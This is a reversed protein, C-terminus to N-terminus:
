GFAAHEKSCDGSQDSEPGSEPGGHTHSQQRTDAEREARPSRTVTEECPTKGPASILGPSLKSIESLFVPWSSRTDPDPQPQRGARPGPGRALPSGSFDRRVCASMETKLSQNPEKTQPESFLVPPVSDCFATPVRVRVAVSLSCNLGYKVTSPSLLNLPSPNPNPLDGLRAHRSVPYSHAVGAARGRRRPTLPLWRQGPVGVQELLFPLPHMLSRQAARETPHWM